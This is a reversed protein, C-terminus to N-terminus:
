SCFFFIINQVGYFRFVKTKGFYMVVFVFIGAMLKPSINSFHRHLFYSSHECGSLLVTGNKFHSLTQAFAEALEFSLPHHVGNPFHLNFRFV